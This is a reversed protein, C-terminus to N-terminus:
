LQPKSLTKQLADRADQRTRDHTHTLQPHKKALKENTKNRVTSYYKNCENVKSKKNNIWKLGNQKAIATRM